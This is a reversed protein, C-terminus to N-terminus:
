KLINNIIEDNKKDIIKQEDLIMQEPINNLQEKKEQSNFNGM